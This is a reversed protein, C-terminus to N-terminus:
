ISNQLFIIRITIIDIHPIATIPAFHGLYDSLGLVGNFLCPVAMDAPHINTDSHLSVRAFDWTKVLKVRSMDSAEGGGGGGGLDARLWTKAGLGGVVEVTKM